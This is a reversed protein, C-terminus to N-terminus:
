EERGLLDRARDAIRDRQHAALGVTAAATGFVFNTSQGVVFNTELTGPVARWTDGGDTSVEVPGVTAGDSEEGVDAFYSLTDGQSATNNSDFEVYTADGEEYTEYGDEGEDYADWAAPLRDRVRVEDYRDLFDVSLRIRDTQGATFVSADDSRTVDVVAPGGGIEIDNHTVAHVGQNIDSAFTVGNSENAGWCNPTVSTLGEMRSAKPVGYDPRSFGKENLQMNGDVEEMKLYRIGGHYHAQHVWFDGSEDVSVDSNHPSLTFNNFKVETNSYRANKGKENQWEWTDFNGLASPTAAPKVGDPVDLVDADAEYIGSTDVFHIKGTSKDNASIEQSAVAVRKTGNDTQMLKPAPSAFHCASMEFHGLQTLNEPNSADLVRLGNGWYSLYVTPRGTVPDDQVEVDHIYQQNPFFGGQRADGSITWQNVLELQGSARDFRYIYMGETGDGLDHIAFVYGDQGIRHHFLNHVGTGSVQQTGVTQPNGKDSVDVAIVAGPVASFSEADANPTPDSAENFLATYPQTGLFVYQGDDSVKLDMVATATSNNTLYSVVNMSAADAQATNEAGNYGSIDVIAMGRGPTPRDSSFFAVYAYDGRVRIETQGGYHPRSPRGARGEGGTSGMSHYGVVSANVTNGPVDYDTPQGTDPGDATSGSGWEHASASGAAAGVGLAAGVTKLVTRRTRESIDSSGTMTQRVKRGGIFPSQSLVTWVHTDRRAAGAVAPGSAGADDSSPGDPRHEAPPLEGAVDAVFRHGFGDVRASEAVVLGQPAVPGAADVRGARRVGDVATFRPWTWWMPRGVTGDFTASTQPTSRTTSVPENPAPAEAVPRAGGRAVDVM